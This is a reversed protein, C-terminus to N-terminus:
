RGRKFSGVDRRDKKTPRGAGSERRSNGMSGGFVDDRPPPAPSEDRYMERAAEKSVNGTPITLVVFKRLREGRKIEIVDNERVLSAAKARNGNIKVRGGNCDDTAESRAKYLCVQKLWVDLRHRENNESEKEAM